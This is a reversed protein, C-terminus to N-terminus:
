FLTYRVAVRVHFRCPAGRRECPAFKSGKVWALAAEDLEPIGRDISASRVRGDVDVFALVWVIGQVSERKAAEPYDLPPSAVIRPWDTPANRSTLSIRLTDPLTVAATPSSAVAKAPPQPTTPPAAPGTSPNTVPKTDPAKAD